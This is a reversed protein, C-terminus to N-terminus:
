SEEYASLEIQGLYEEVTTVLDEITNTVIVGRFECYRRIKTEGLVQGELCVIVSKDRGVCDGLELLSAVGEYIDNLYFVIINCENEMYAMEKAVQNALEEDSFDDYGDIQPDFVSIDNSVQEKFKQIWSNDVVGGLYVEYM